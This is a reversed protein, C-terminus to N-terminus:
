DNLDGKQTLEIRQRVIAASELLTSLEDIQDSNPQPHQQLVQHALQMLTDHTTALNDPHSTSSM